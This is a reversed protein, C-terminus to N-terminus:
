AQDSDRTFVSLRGVEQFGLSRAVSLSATNSVTAGWVPWRGSTWMHRTMARVARSGHGQRRHAELTEISIDWWRETRLAPYCFSVPVGSAWSAAMPLPELPPPVDRDPLEGPVFRAVTRGRLASVLEDRMGAPVHSLRPADRASFVRTDPDSGEAWEPRSRLAHLLATTRRWGTLSSGVYATEAPQCLVNLDGELGGIVEQILSRPPRGVISVLAADPMSVVFGDAAAEPQRPFSVAARGSLLMGRTDVRWPDDPVRELAVEIIM